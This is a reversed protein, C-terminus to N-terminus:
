GLLQRKSVLKGNLLVISWVQRKVVTRIPKYGLSSYTWRAARKDADVFGCARRYGLSFLARQARDFFEIARGGGRHLPAIYFDFAYVGDEGLDLGYLDVFPHRGAPRSGGDSWFLYGILEDHAFALFGDYGRALYRTVRGRQDSDVDHRHHFAEIAARDEPRLPRLVLTEPASLRGRETLQVESVIQESSRYRLIRRLGGVILRRM